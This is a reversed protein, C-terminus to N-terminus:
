FSLRSSRINDPIYSCTTKWGKGSVFVPALKVAIFGIINMGAPLDTAIKVIKFGVFDGAAPYVTSEKLTSAWMEYGNNKDAIILRFDRGGERDVGGVEEVMAPIVAELLLKNPLNRCAYEFAERNSDFTLMKENKKLWGFMTLEGLPM